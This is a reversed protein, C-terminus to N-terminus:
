SSYPLFVFPGITIKGGTGNVVQAHTHDLPARPTSYADSAARIVLEDDADTPIPSTLHRLALYPKGYNSRHRLTKVMQRSHHSIHVFGADPASLAYLGVLWGGPSRLAIRSRDGLEVLTMSLLSTSFEVREVDFNQTATVPDVCATATSWRQKSASQRAAPDAVEWKGLADAANSVLRQIMGESFHDNDVFVQAAGRASASKEILPVLDVCRVGCERVVRRYNDIVFSHKSAVRGMAAKGQLLVFVLKGALAPWRALASLWGLHAGPDLTNSSEFILDNLGYEFVVVDAAAVEHEHSFLYDAGRLSSSHGLSRNTWAGPLSAQLRAGFGAEIICNSGGVLLYKPEKLM